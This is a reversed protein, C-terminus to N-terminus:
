FCQCSFLVDWGCPSKGKKCPDPNLMFCGVESTIRVSFDARDMSVILLLVSVYVYVCLCVCVCVVLLILQVIVLRSFVVVVVVAVDMYCSFLLPSM